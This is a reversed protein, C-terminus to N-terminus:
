INDNSVHTEPHSILILFASHHITVASIIGKTADASIINDNVMTGHTPASVFDKANITAVACSELPIKHRLGQVIGIVKFCPIFIVFVMPETANPSSLMGRRMM